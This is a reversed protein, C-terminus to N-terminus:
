DAPSGYGNIWENGPGDAKEVLLSHFIRDHAIAAPGLDLDLDSSLSRLIADASRPPRGYDFGWQECASRTATEHQKGHSTSRSGKPLRTVAVMGALRSHRRTRARCAKWDLITWRSPHEITRRAVTLRIYPRRRERAPQAYVAGRRM